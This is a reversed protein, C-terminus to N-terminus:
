PGRGPRAARRMAPAASNKPSRTPQRRQVATPTPNKAHQDDDGPDQRTRHRRRERARKPTNRPTGRDRSVRRAPPSKSARATAAIAQATATIPPSIPKASSQCIGAGSFRDLDATSQHEQRDAIHRADNRHAVAVHRKGGREAIDSHHERDDRSIEDPPRAPYAVITPLRITM